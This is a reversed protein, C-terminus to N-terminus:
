RYDILLVDDTDGPEGGTSTPREGDEPEGEEAAADASVPRETVTSRFCNAVYPLQMGDMGRGYDDYFALM